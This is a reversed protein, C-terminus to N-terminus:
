KKFLFYITLCLKLAHQHLTTHQLKKTHVPTVFVPSGATISARTKSSQNLFSLTLHRRHVLHYSDKENIFVESFISISSKHAPSCRENIKIWNHARFHSMMNCFICQFIHKHPHSYWPLRAAFQVFLIIRPQDSLHDHLYETLDTGTPTVRHNPQFLLACYTM